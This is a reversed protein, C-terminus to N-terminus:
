GSAPRGAARPVVVVRHRHDEMTRQFSPTYEIYADMSADWDLVWVGEAFYYMRAEVRSTGGNPVAATAVIRVRDPVEFVAEQGFPVWQSPTAIPKGKESVIVDFRVGPESGAAILSASPPVLTAALESM